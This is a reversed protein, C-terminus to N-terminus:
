EACVLRDREDLTFGGLGLATADLTGISTEFTQVLTREARAGTQANAIIACVSGTGTPACPQGFADTANAPAAYQV